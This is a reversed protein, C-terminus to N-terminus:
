LKEAVVVAGVVVDVSVVVAAIEVDFIFIIPVVIIGGVDSTTVLSGSAM